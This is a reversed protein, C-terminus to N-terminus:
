ITGTLSSMSFWPFQKKFTFFPCLTKSAANDGLEVCYFMTTVWCISVWCTNHSLYPGTTQVVDTIFVYLGGHGRPVPIRTAPPLFYIIIMTIFWCIIYERPLQWDHIKVLITAHLLCHPQLHLCSPGLLHGQSPSLSCPTSLPSPVLKTPKQPIHKGPPPLLLAFARLYFLVPRCLAPPPILYLSCPFAAPFQLGLPSLLGAAM